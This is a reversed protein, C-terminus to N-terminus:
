FSIGKELKKKCDRCTVLSEIKTTHKNECYRGCVGVTQSLQYHIKKKKVM